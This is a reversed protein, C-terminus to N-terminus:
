FYNNIHKSMSNKKESAAIWRHRLRWLCPLATDV